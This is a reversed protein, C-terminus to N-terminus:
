KVLSKIHLENIVQQDHELRDLIRQLETDLQILFQVVRRYQPSDTCQINQADTFRNKCELILHRVSDGSVGKSDRIKALSAIDNSLFQKHEILKALLADYAEVENTFIHTGVFLPQINYPVEDSRYEGEPTQSVNVERVVRKFYDAFFFTM